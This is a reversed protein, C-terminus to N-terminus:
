EPTQQGPSLFALWGNVQQEPEPQAPGTQGPAPQQKAMSMELADIREMLQNLKASVATIVRQEFASGKDGNVEQEAGKQPPAPPMDAGDKEEPGAPAPEGEEGEGLADKEGADEKPTRYLFFQILHVIMGFVMIVSSITYTGGMQEITLGSAEEGAVECIPQYQSTVYLDRMKTVTNDLRYRVVWASIYDLMDPTVPFSMGIALQFAGDKVELIKCYKHHDPCDDPCTLPDKAPDSSCTCDGLAITSQEFDPNTCTTFQKPDRKDTCVKFTAAQAQIMSQYQTKGIISAQCGANRYMKEVMPGYDDMGVKKSNPVEPVLDAMAELLCLSRGKTVLDKMSAIKGPTNDTSILFNILSAAYSAVTVYIFLAFGFLIIRGPWKTVNHTPGATLLGLTSLYVGKTFGQLYRVIPSQCADEYEYDSNDSGAEVIYMLIGTFFFMGVVIGWVANNFPKFIDLLKMPDFGDDGGEVAPMTLLRMTDLDFSSSFPAIARRENTEWFDGVCLDVQRKNVEWVCRTFSSGGTYTQYSIASFNARTLAIVNAGLNTFIKHSLEGVWGSNWNDAVFCEPVALKPDDCNYDRGLAAAAAEAKPNEVVSPSVLYMAKVVKPTVGDAEFVCNMCAFNFPEASPNPTTTPTAGGGGGAAATTTQGM